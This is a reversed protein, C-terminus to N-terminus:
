VLHLRCVDLEMGAVWLRDTVAVAASHCADVVGLTQGRTVTSAGLPAAMLSWTM